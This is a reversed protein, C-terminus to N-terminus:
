QEDELTASPAASARWDAVRVLTELYALRFPGHAELLALVRDSWSAGADGRGVKALDIPLGTCARSTGAPTEVPEVADDARVGRLEIPADADVDTWQIPRLGVRVKGHHSAALYAVLDSLGADIALLASVLEHRFGRREYRAFSRAKALPVASAGAARQFVPHIKGVDHWAAAHRMQEVLDPGVLAVLSEGLARAQADTDRLHTALDVAHTAVSRADGGYHNRPRGSAEPSTAPTSASKGDWGLSASYGGATSAVLYIQGASVFGPAAGQSRNHARVWTGELSDWSWAKGRAKKRVFERFQAVPVPCLEDRGAPAVSADPAHAIDRWFVSVDTTGAGRVWRSIDVFNGDLDPDTDFLALVDRRRPLDTVPWTVDLAISALNDIRADDLGELVGRARELDAPEYPATEKVKATDLDVWFARADAHEGRRNCRGFRQVLSAWPALDTVLTAASLDVGAEVTQTAVVISGAAPVPQALSAEAAAREHPRFRSHILVHEVDPPAVKRLARSLEQARAVRNVVVLTLTGPRHTDKIWTALQKSEAVPARALPKAAVTRTRLEPQDRDEDDLVIQNDPEPQHDPTTFWSPQLTASAFTTGSPGFGGLQDRLGQLQAATRLGPGMLQVEDLVWWADNNLLGFHMPWRFRSMSFGRNLARSLLQDQTGVLICDREPQAEWAEDVEGGLLRHVGLDDLGLRQRWTEVNGAIQGVLVRMPLCYVLRRPTAARTDASAHFRRQWLWGLVLAATKGAGTPAQLLGPMAAALALRRQYPFPAFGTAREFYSDFDM